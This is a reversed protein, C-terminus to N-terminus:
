DRQMEFLMERGDRWVMVFIPRGAEIRQLERTTEAATHVIRRNVKRVVDGEEIGAEAAPSDDEVSRVLSGDRADGLSLGFNVSEAAPLQEERIAASPLSEVEVDLTSTRGDRLVIVLARSGPPAASVRALLDDASAVPAEAFNVIVDGGRFGAADATSGREVSTILAGEARPLGLATADDSTIRGQRLSVGIRGRTVGGARLQPLLAKVDNIPVAFGIGSGAGIEDTVIAANIGVVEGRVNLLPGGSSGANMSADTQILTQRRGEDDEVVRRQHGVIGVTVTHSLQFPNGIAMVWDGTELADSDGLTAFPLDDRPEQLRILASDSVPDRGVVTARYTTTETALLRVRIVDADAVVHDSTLIEGDRSILFGSGMERRVRFEEPLPWGFVREFREMDQHSLLERRATTLIAVVVPNQRRAIARFLDTDLTAPFSARSRGDTLSLGSVAVFTLAILSRWFRTDGRM